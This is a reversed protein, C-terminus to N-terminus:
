NIYFPIFKFFFAEIYNFNINAFNLGIFKVLIKQIIKNM